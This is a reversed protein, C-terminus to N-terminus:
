AADGHRHADRQLMDSVFRSELEAPQLAAKLELMAAIMGAFMTLLGLMFLPVAVFVAHPVLVSLGLMTSCGIMLSITLLLFLLTLRILKARGVVGVTQTELHELLHRRRSHEPGEEPAASHLLEQEHLRERQFGRLRSVIAALRNYFALCLLGCASIIVVPVVSVSVIKAWDSPPM